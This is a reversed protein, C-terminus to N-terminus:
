LGTQLQFLSYNKRLVSAELPSEAEVKHKTTSGQSRPKTTTFVERGLIFGDVLFLVSFM